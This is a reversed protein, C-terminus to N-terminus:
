HLSLSLLGISCMASLRPHMVQTIALRETRQNLVKMLARFCGIFAPESLDGHEDTCSALLDFIKEASHRGLNTVRKFGELTWDAEEPSAAAAAAPPSPLAGYAEDALVLEYAPRAAFCAPAKCLLSLPFYIDQAPDRIGVVESSCGFGLSLASALEERTLAAHVLVEKIVGSIPDLVRCSYAQQM